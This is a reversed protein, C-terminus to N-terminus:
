PMVVRLWLKGHRNRILVILPMNTPLGSAAVGHSSAANVAQSFDPIPAGRTPNSLHSRLAKVSEVFDITDASWVQPSAGFYDRV